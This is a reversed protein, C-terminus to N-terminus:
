RELVQVNKLQQVAQGLSREIVAGTTDGAFLIRRKTHAGEQGFV